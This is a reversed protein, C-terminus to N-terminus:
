KTGEGSIRKAMKEFDNEYVRDQTKQYESFRERAIKKATTMSRNGKGKLVERGNFTLFGDLLNRCDEM